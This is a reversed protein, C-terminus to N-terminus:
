TDARSTGARTAGVAPTQTRVVDATSPPVRRPYVAGTLGWGADSGDPGSAPRARLPHWPNARPNVAPRAGARRTILGLRGVQVAVRACEEVLEHDVLIPPAGARAAIVVSDLM